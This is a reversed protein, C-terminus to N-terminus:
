GFQKSCFSGWPAAVQPALLRAVSQFTAAVSMARWSVWRKGSQRPRMKTAPTLLGVTRDRGLSLRGVQHPPESSPTHSKGMEVPLGAMSRRM